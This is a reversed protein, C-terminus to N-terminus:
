AMKTLLHWRPLEIEGWTVPEKWGDLLDMLEQGQTYPNSAQGIDVKGGANHRGAFCKYLGTTPDLYLKWEDSGCVPCHKYNINNGSPKCEGAFDSLSTPRPM